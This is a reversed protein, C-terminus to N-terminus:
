DSAKTPNFIFANSSSDFSGIGSAANLSIDVEVANEADNSISPLTYILPPDGVHM